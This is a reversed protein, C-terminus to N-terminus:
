GADLALVAVASELFPHQGGELCREFGLELALPNRKLDAHMERQHIAARVPARQFPKRFVGARAILHAAHAIAGPQVLRRRGRCSGYVALTPRGSASCWWVRW